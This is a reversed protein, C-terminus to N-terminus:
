AVASHIHHSGSLWHRTLASDQGNTTTRQRCSNCEMTHDMMEGPVDEVEKARQLRKAQRRGGERCGHGNSGRIAM